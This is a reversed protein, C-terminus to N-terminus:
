DQSLQIIRVCPQHDQWPQLRVSGTVARQHTVGAIDVEIVPDRFRVTGASPIALQTPAQVNLVITGGLLSESGPCAMAKAGDPGDLTDANLRRLFEEAVTRAAQFQSDSSRSFSSTTTSPAAPPQGVSAPGPNAAHDRALFFGPAVFGTVAVVAVVLGLAALTAWLGTRRPRPPVPGGGPFPPPGYGPGPAGSWGPPSGPRGGTPAGAAPHGRQPSPGHYPHTM